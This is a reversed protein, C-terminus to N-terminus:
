PVFCDSFKRRRSTRRLIEFGGGLLALGDEISCSHDPHHAAAPSISSAHKLNSILEDKGLGEVIMGIAYANLETPDAEIHDRSSVRWTKWDAMPYSATLFNGYGPPPPISPPPPPLPSGFTGHGRGGGGICVWEDGVEVAIDHHNNIPDVAKWISITVAGVTVVNLM